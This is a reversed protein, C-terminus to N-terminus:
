EVRQSLILQSGFEELTCLVACVCYCLASSKAAETRQTNAPFSKSCWGLWPVHFCVCVSAYVSRGLCLWECVMDSFSIEIRDIHLFLLWCCRPLPVTSYTPDSPSGILLTNHLHQLDWPIIPKPLWRRWKLDGMMDLSSYDFALPIAGSSLSNVM